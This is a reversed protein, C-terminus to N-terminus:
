EVQGNAVKIDVEAIELAESLGPMTAEWKAAYKEVHDWPPYGAPHSTLSTLMWCLEQVADAGTLRNFLEHSDDLEIDWRDSMCLVARMRAAIKMAAPILELLEERVAAIEALDDDSVLVDLNLWKPVEPLNTTM